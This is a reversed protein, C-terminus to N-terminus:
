TTMGSTFLGLRAARATTAVLTPAREPQALLAVDSDVALEVPVCTGAGAM